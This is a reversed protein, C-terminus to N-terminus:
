KKLGPSANFAKVLSGDALKFVRVEGNFAGGAVLTGDPSAAVAYVHDTFGGMSKGAALSEANWSRVTMDASCTVVMPQKPVRAVRFVPKGHSANRLSKGAKDGTTNWMRVQNDEGVSLGAKDGSAPLVGYVTNQHDPFTVMSEKAVLDWVKATKDRSSTYLKKADDSFAVGFVWDAHNEIAAEQKAKDLGGSLDWVTVVRDCGGAALKKGDASLALALIEDDSEGLVKVMVAKDNVGDLLTVGGEAKGKANLDYVRVDGEEGPRGGAVVLKGDPLFTMAMARRSRTRIRKELTGTTADFVNLEHHGGVVVKKSDPTFALATVTVPFPYAAPPVPPTWRVRLEKVLDADAKVGADLKAGEKIWRQILAIKDKPLADGTDLPPMRRKDSATLADIIYSDEPKGDVIPDDKTGGKRFTAFKTMDLKGKPSKAGHCGFCSEKLIPAIDNIFSVPKAAPPQAQAPNANLWLLAAAAAALTVCLVCLCSRARLM